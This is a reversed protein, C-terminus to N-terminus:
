LRDDRLKWYSNYVLTYLSLLIQFNYISYDSMPEAPQPLAVTNLTEVNPEQTRFM